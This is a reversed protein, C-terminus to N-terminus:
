NVTVQGTRQGRIRIRHTLTLAKVYIVYILLIFHFDRTIVFIDSKITLFYSFIAIPKREM